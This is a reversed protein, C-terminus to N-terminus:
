TNQMEINTAHIFAPLGQMMRLTDKDMQLLGPVQKEMGDPNMVTGTFSIENGAVINVSEVLPEAKIVFIRNGDQEIWFGRDGVVETVTALGSVPKGFYADPNAAIAALPLEPTAAEAGPTAAPQTGPTAAPETVAPTATAVEADREPTAADVVWWILAAVVLV